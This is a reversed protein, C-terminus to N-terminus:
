DGIFFFNTGWDGSNIGLPILTVGGIIFVVASLPGYNIGQLTLSLGQHGATPILLVGRLPEFSQGSPILPFPSFSFPPVLGPNQRKQPIVRLSM